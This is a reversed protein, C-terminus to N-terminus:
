RWNYDRSNKGLKVQARDQGEARGNPPTNFLQTVGYLGVLTVTWFVFAM